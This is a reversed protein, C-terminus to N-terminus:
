RLAFLPTDAHGGTMLYLYGSSREGYLGALKGLLGVAGGDNPIAVGDDEHGGDHAADALPEVEEGEGDLVFLAEVGDPANGAAEEAALAAGGSLSRQGRAQGVPRQAGAEGLPHAVLHLNDDGHEGGVVRVLGVDKANDAGRSGQRNRVDREVARDRRRAHPVDVAFQDHIGGEFLKRAALEVEADGAAAVGDDHDLRAGLFNAFLDDELRQADPLLGVNADDFQLVGDGGLDANRLRLDDQGPLSIRLEDGLDVREDAWRYFADDVATLAAALAVLVNPGGFPLSEVLEGLLVVLLDDGAHEVVHELLNHALLNNAFALARVSALKGFHPREGALNSQQGAGM